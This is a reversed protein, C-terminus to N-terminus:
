APVGAGQVDRLIVAAEDDSIGLRQQIAALMARERPTLVDDAAGDEVAARYLDARRDARYSATDDVGPLIRDAVHQALSELPRFALAIAAAAGVGFIAGDFELAREVSESVVVFVLAFPAVITSGKVAVKLRLDIDMVQHRLIGYALLGVLAVLSLPRGYVISEGIFGPPVVGGLGPFFVLALSRYVFFLDQVAFALLFWFARDRAPTGRPARRWASVSIALALLYLLSEVELLWRLPAEFGISWGGTTWPTPHGIFMSRWALVVGVTGGAGAALLAKGRRTRWWAAWPTRLTSLFWINAFPLVLLALLNVVGVSWGWRPDDSMPMLAWASIGAGHLLLVLALRRNATRNPATWYVALGALWTFAWAAFALYVGPHIAM